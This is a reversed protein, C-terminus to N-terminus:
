QAFFRLYPRYSASGQNPWRDVMSLDPVAPWVADAGAPVPSPESEAPRLAKVAPASKMIIHRYGNDWCHGKGHWYLFSTHYEGSAESRTLCLPSAHAPSAMLILALALKM